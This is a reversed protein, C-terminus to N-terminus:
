VPETAAAASRGFRRTVRDAIRPATVNLVALWKARRYPYSEPRPSDILRLIADAVVEARQRPGHGEVRHGFDRAEAERFETETSVPYVISAHIGTGALEVRLSEILGAQAAKTASYVSSGAVGRRGVISSVCVIHGAQQRRFVRLAAQAAYLSGMLNVDVLRRMVEAPTEDFRGHYGIGANCIMVDLRGFAEVARDVLARCDSERTVDGTVTVAEGGSARVRAAVETLRDARRALLALRAGGAAAREAV